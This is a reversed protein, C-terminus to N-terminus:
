FVELVRSLCFVHASGESSLLYFRNAEVHPCCCCGGV